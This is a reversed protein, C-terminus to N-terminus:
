FKLNLRLGLIVAPDVESSTPEVYQADLTLHTAPTLAINYFCEVAQAHSDIGLLGALRIDQISTYSYAIGLTDRDRTPILGMAAIGGSLSFDVPNTEDDAFGVRTFLGIGQLDQTGNTQSVPGKAAEELWLYQWADWTAFWTEDENSLSLGEGPQFVIGGAINTFDNDTAYTVGAAMGGPLGALQYQYQVSTLWTWGEGFDSFGSTTSSDTTNMVLSTITMNKIPMVVIGAALTSYPVSLLAAPSLLFNANMYQSVGRGGAFENGSDLTDIKGLFVGFHESLFQAYRLTTIAIAVENDLEGSLPFLGDSNVPMLPGAIDNAADGYRTEGRITILAGPMVGMQMLDLNLLYDLSGGYRTGTDRGGDVVSQMYQTFDVDFQIGKKSLGTRAGGWDGTLHSREFLDGSYDPLPLLGTPAPPSADQPPPEVGLQDQAM